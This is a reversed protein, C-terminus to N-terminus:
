KDIIVTITNVSTPRFSDLFAGEKNQEIYGGVADIWENFETIKKGQGNKNAAMVCVVRGGANLLSYAHKLHDIDQHNEFPPNMIIKDFGENIDLFDVCEANHGKLNLAETLSRNVEFVKLDNEPHLESIVDALHGLGGSPEAIKDGEKVNAKEVLYTSLETPTPFFGDIKVSLFKRELEKIALERKQDETITVGEKLSILERLMTRLEPLTDAGLRKIRQYNLLRERYTKVEWTSINASLKCFVTEYDEIAFDSTLIIFEDKPTFRKVIRAAALKKGADNKLKDLLGLVNSKYLVPYPIEVFEVTKTTVEYEDSKLTNDSRIHKWKAMSLLRELEELETNTNLKDLYKIQGKELGEAIKLLTKGFEIKNCAKKEASAAMSARRHTNTKRERNLEDTGEIILKNAKETLAEARTQTKQEKQEEKLEASNVNGDKVKAFLQAAELSEFTFGPIAGQKNYSSYYGGLEKARANLEQYTEREVRQSLVVVFLNIQKKAHFSKKIEMEANVDKVQKVEAKRVEQTHKIEKMRDTRMADFRIKQDESLQAEGKERIFVHFEAITEPNELAKKHAMDEAENKAVEKNYIDETQQSLIKKVADEYTEGDFPSYQISASLTFYSLLDSYISDILDEKKTRYTNRVMNKLQPVKYPALLAKVAPANNLVHDRLEVFKSFSMLNTGVKRLEIILAKFDNFVLSQTITTNEM